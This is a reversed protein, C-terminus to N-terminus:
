KVLAGECLSSRFINRLSFEALHLFQIIWWTSRSSLSWPRKPSLPSLSCYSRLIYSLTLCQPLLSPVKSVFSFFFFSLSLYSRCCCRRLSAWGEHEECRSRVLGNSLSPSTQLSFFVLVLESLFFFSRSILFPLHLSLMGPLGCSYDKCLPSLLLFHPLFSVM